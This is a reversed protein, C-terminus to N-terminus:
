RGAGLHRAAAFHGRAFELDRRAAAMMNRRLDAPTAGAIPYEVHVSIPGAFPTRAIAAALWPWDVMGDGMPCHRFAWGTPGHEWRGDKVSMMKLRSSV